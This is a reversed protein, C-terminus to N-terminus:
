KETVVADVPCDWEEMPIENLVQFSFAPGVTRCRLKPILRDYYGGGRGLRNNQRDYAVGPVIAFDITSPDPFPEDEPHVMKKGYGSLPRVDVEGRMPSYSLVTHASIFEPLAAIRGCIVASDEEVRDYERRRLRIEERIDSKTRM